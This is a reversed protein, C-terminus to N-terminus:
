LLRYVIPDETPFICTRIQYKPNSHPSIDIMLYSYPENLADDYVSQFNKSKGPYLQRALNSVQLKDRPNRFLVLYHLQLSITKAKKGSYFINQSLYILNMNRHHCHITFLQEAQSSNCVENMLDDLILISHSGSETLNEIDEETPLGKKMMFNEITNEMDELIPQSITYCYLIKSINETFMDNCNKLLRRVFTTKGSQQCGYVGISCPSNFRLVSM